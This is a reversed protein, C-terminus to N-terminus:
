RSNTETAGSSSEAQHIINELRFIRQHELDERILGEFIAAEEMLASKDILCMTQVYMEYKRGKREYMNKLEHCGSCLTRCKKIENQVTAWSRSKAASINFKKNYIHDFEITGPNDSLCVVCHSKAKISFIKKKNDELKARSQAQKSSNTCSKCENRYGSKM